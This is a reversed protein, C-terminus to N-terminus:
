TEISQTRQALESLVLKQNCNLAYGLNSPPSVGQDPPVLGMGRNAALLHGQHQARQIVVSEQAALANRKVMLDNVMIEIQTPATEGKNFATSHFQLTAMVSKQFKSLGECPNTWMM